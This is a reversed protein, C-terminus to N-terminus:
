RPERRFGNGAPAPAATFETMRPWERAPESEPEPEPCGLRQLAVRGVARGLEVYADFVTDSLIQNVTTTKPVTRASGPWLRSRFDTCVRRAAAEADPDGALTDAFTAKAFVIRGTAAPADGVQPYTFDITEVCDRTVRDSRLDYLGRESRIRVGSGRQEFGIGFHHRAVEMIEDLTRTALMGDGSADVVLITACRRRILELLGLNDLHGGDSVYVFRKRSPLVGLVERILWSGRRRRVWRGRLTSESPWRCQSRPNPLWVGLRLNALVVFRGATPIRARTGMGSAIAAGSVAMAAQLTGDRALRRGLAGMFQSTTWFGLEPSGVHDHAFVFPVAREGGPPISLDDVNATACVLLAPGSGDGVPYPKAWDPLFTPKEYPIHEVRGGAARRISFTSALRQKYLRHPSVLSQDMLLLLAILVATAVVVVGDTVVGFGFFWSAAGLAAVSWGAVFWALEFAFRGAFRLGGRHSRVEAEELPSRRAQEELPSRRAQEEPPSRRAAWTAGLGTLALVGVVGVVIPPDATITAAAAVFSAFVLWGSVVRAVTTARCRREALLGDAHFLERVLLGIVAAAAIAPAWLPHDGTPLPLWSWVRSAWFGLLYVIGVITLLNLTTAAVLKAANRCLTAGHGIYRHHERLRTFEPSGPGYAAYGAPHETAHHLMHASIGLYGGGSVTALYDSNELSWDGHGRGRSVSLAQLVGTAFSASRIGGGSLAIGFGAGRFTDGNGDVYREACGCAAPAGSRPPLVSPVVSRM